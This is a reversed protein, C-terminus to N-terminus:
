SNSYVIEEFGTLPYSKRLSHGKFGYDNLIRRLKQHNKFYIGM